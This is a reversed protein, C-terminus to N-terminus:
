LYVHIDYTNVQLVNIRVATQGVIFFKIKVYKSNYGPFLLNHFSLTIESKIM